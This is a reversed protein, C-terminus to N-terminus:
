LNLRLAKIFISAEMKIRSKDYIDEFLNKIEVYIWTLDLM